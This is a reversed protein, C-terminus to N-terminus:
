KLFNKLYKKQILLIHKQITKLHVGMEEAVSRIAKDEIYVKQFVIAQQETLLEMFKAVFETDLVQEEVSAAGDQFDLGKEAQLKELSADKKRQRWRFKAENKKFDEDLKRYEKKFAETVEIEATKGDAFTYTIKEMRQDESKSKKRDCDPPDALFLFFARSSTSREGNKPM